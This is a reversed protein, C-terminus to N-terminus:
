LPQPEISRSDNVKQWPYRACVARDRVKWHAAGHRRPAVARMARRPQQGGALIRTQLLVRLETIVILWRPGYGTSETWALEDAQQRVVARVGSLAIRAKGLQQQGSRGTRQAVVASSWRSALDRDRAARDLHGQSQRLLQGLRSGAAM